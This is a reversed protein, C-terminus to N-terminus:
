EWKVVFSKDDQKAYLLEEIKQDAETDATLLTGSVKQYVLKSPDIAEFIPYEVEFSQKIVSFQFAFEELDDPVELINKLLFTAEYNEGSPLPADPKFEITSADIWKAEGKIDPSFDFVNTVSGIKSSDAFNGTLQIRISSERPITGATHASIYSAFAPNIKLHKKNSSNNSIFYVVGILTVVGIVIALSKGSLIKTALSSKNM